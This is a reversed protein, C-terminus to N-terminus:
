PAPPNRCSRANHGAFQKCRSCCVKKAPEVESHGRIRKKHPRGPQRRVDPPLLEDTSEDEDGSEVSRARRMLQHLGLDSDEFEPIESLNSMSTPPYIPAAYTAMYEAIIFVSEVYDQANERRIFISNIAYHCLSTM